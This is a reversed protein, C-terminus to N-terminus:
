HLEHRRVGWALSEEGIEYVEKVGVQFLQNGREKEIKCPKKQSVTVLNLSMSLVVDNAVCRPRIKSM